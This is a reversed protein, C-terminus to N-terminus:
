LESTVESHIEEASTAEVQKTINADNNQKAVDDRRKAPGVASAARADRQESSVGSLSKIYEVLQTVEEETFPYVPMVNEYGELVNNYPMLISERIYSENGVLVRGDNMRRIKGILGKLSPARYTDKEQHCNVCGNEVFLKRGSEVMTDAKKTFRNGGNALWKDYEDPQMVYVYGGMESHQAGCHMTCFLNFKGVANPTFNVTTYRGPITHFQVRFQPIYLAHIVDQSIMTIKVPRGLPIHLENNERLGNPHQFHWMWQKGVVYIDSANDDSTRSDKYLLMGWFFVGLGLITPIITWTLELGLHHHIRNSRDVNKNSARYKILLYLIMVGVLLTFFVTLATILYFLADHQAAYESGQVPAFKLEKM